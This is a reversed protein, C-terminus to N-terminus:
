SNLNKGGLERADVSTPLGAADGSGPMVQMSDPEDSGPNQSSSGGGFISISQYLRVLPNSFSDLFSRRPTPSQATAAASTGAETAEIGINEPIAAKVSSTSPASAAPSIEPPPIKRTASSNSIRTEGSEILACRSCGGPKTTSCPSPNTSIPGTQATGSFTVGHGSMLNGLAHGWCAETSGQVNGVLKLVSKVFFEESCSFVGSRTAEVDGHSLTEHEGTTEESIPGPSITLVDFAHRETEYNLYDYNQSRVINVLACSEYECHEGTIEQERSHPKRAMRERFMKIAIRNMDRSLASSDSSSSVFNILMSLDQGVLSGIRSELSEIASETNVLDGSLVKIDPVELDTTRIMEVIVERRLRECEVEDGVLVVHFGQFAFERCFRKALSSNTAASSDSDVSDISQRDILQGDILQGNSNDNGPVVICVWSGEGYREALNLPHILTHKYISHLFSRCFKYGSRVLSIIALLSYILSLNVLVNVWTSWVLPPPPISSNNSSSTSDTTSDTSTEESTFVDTISADGSISDTEALPIEALQDHCTQYRLVNIFQNFFRSSGDNM